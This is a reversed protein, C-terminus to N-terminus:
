CKQAPAHNVADTHLSRILCLEDALKSTEPPLAEEPPMVPPGGFETMLLCSVSLAIDRVTEAEVRFRPKLLM